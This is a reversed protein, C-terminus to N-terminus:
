YCSGAPEPSLLARCKSIEFDSLGFMSRWGDERLELLRAGTINAQAAVSAALDLENEVFFEEVRRTGWAQVGAVRGSGERKTTNGAAVGKRPEKTALAPPAVSKRM